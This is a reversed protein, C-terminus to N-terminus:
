NLSLSSDDGNAATISNDMENKVAGGCASPTDVVTLKPRLLLFRPTTLPKTMIDAIQDKSCIFQVQLQHSMIRERIFHYDLEVHKTRAHFMPNSALFTAGINDCWLTPASHLSVQLETLLYQVWILEAGTNALSRYEAETSSRSVTPQKKSSWSILNSGLYICYGSTSRRDDPCGAWDADCYAHLNLSSSPTISLGLHSSGKLYRLIRKVAAWHSTTPSHMYQSVKNVSYAIDPRTLTAYQLAGVISRYLHPDSCPDGDHKSLTLNSAMPSPYPHADQMHARSILDNIYKAQCLHLGNNHSSVEIGLFYHLPGLDKLAFQSQLHVILTQISDLHTGTVIIDDVYVLFIITRGNSHLVFLSPDYQSGHFGYAILASSLTQFWARPSQKLGYLSKSLLCVHNPLSPEVFGPPQKMYVTEHLDGHLFANQVDLQRLHWGYSVALSLVIRITTPRVVPSFTEFYDVGEQQNFGKAVLRAKYRDITGDSKRKTKYVWKCGIIHQDLPPPVLTWTQNRALADIESAMADRWHSSTQAQSFTTPDHSLETSSTLAFHDPFQKPKRTNDRTRTIM